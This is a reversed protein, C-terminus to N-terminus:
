MPYYLALIVADGRMLNWNLGDMSGFVKLRDTSITDETLIDITNYLVPTKELIGTFYRNTRKQEEVFSETDKGSARGQINGSRKRTIIQNPIEEKNENLIRIDSFNPQSKQGKLIGYSLRELALRLCDPNWPATTSDRRLAGAHGIRKRRCTAQVGRRGELVVEPVLLHGWIFM